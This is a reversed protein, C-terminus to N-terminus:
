DGWVQPWYKDDQYNAPIPDMVELANSAERVAKIWDWAAQLQALEATEQETLLGGMVQTKVLEVARATYNAQRWQPFPTYIRRGSENRVAAVQAEIPRRKIEWVRTVQEAGVVLSNTVTELTPEHEPAPADVFPRVLLGGDTDFKHRPVRAPDVMREEVFEGNLVLAHLTEAM